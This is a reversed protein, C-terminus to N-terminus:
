ALPVDSETRQLWSKLPNLNWTAHSADDFTKPGLMDSGM